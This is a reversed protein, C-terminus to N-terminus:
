RSQNFSIDARQGKIMSVFRDQRKTETQSRSETSSISGSLFELEKGAFTKSLDRDLGIKGALKDFRNSFDDRGDKRFKESIISLFSIANDKKDNDISIFVYRKSFLTIISKYVNIELANMLTDFEENNKENDLYYYYLTM